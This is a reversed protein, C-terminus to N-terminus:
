AEVERTGTTEYEILVRKPLQSGILARMAGNLTDPEDQNAIVARRGFNLADRHGM